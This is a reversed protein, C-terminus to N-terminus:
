IMLQVYRNIDQLLIYILTFAGGIPLNKNSEREKGERQSPLSSKSANLILTPLINQMNM